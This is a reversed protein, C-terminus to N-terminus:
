QAVLSIERLNMVAMISGEKTIIGVQDLHKHGIRIVMDGIKIIEPPTRVSIDMTLKTQKQNNSALDLTVVVKLLLLPLPM